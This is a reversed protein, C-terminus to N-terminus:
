RRNVFLKLITEILLRVFIWGDYNRRNREMLLIRPWIKFKEQLM